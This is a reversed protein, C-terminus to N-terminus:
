INSLDLRLSESAKCIVLSLVDFDMVMEQLLFNIVAFDCQRVDGGISLRGISKGFPEIALLVFFKHQLHAYAMCVSPPHQVTTVCVTLVMGQHSVESKSRKKRM